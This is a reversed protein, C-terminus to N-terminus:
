YVGSRSRSGRRGIIGVRFLQDRERFPLDLHVPLVTILVPIREENQPAASRIMGKPVNAAGRTVMM